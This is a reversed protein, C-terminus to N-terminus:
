AISNTTFGALLERVEVTSQKEALKVMHAALPDGCEVISSFMAKVKGSTFAPTLKVRWQKWKEGGLSFLNGSLPDREEDM